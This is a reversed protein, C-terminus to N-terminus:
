AGFANWPLMFNSFLGHDLHLIEKFCFGLKRSASWAGFVLVIVTLVMMGHTLATVLQTKLKFVMPVEKMLLPKFNQQKITRVKM